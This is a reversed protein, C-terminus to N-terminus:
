IFAPPPRGPLGVLALDLTGDQLAQVHEGSGGAAQRLRVVVEPHQAHFHGLVGALDIPGTSLMTGVTVMGRLGGHVEDV